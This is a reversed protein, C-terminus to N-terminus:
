EDDHFQNCSCLFRYITNTHNEELAAAMSHDRRGGKEMLDAIVCLNNLMNEMFSPYQYTGLTMSM